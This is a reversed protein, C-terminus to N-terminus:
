DEQRSKGASLPTSRIMLCNTQTPCFTAIASAPVTPGSVCTFASTPAAPSPLPPLCWPLFPCSSTSYPAKTEYLTSRQWVSALERNQLMLGFLSVSAATQCLAALALGALCCLYPIANTRGICCNLWYSHHSHMAVCVNCIDCHRTDSCVAIKCKGCMLVLSTDVAFGYHVTFFCKWAAAATVILGAVQGAALGASWLVPLEATPISVFLALVTLGALAKVQQSSCTERM